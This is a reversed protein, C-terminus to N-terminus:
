GKTLKQILDSIATRTEDDRGTPITTINPTKNSTGTIAFQTQPHQQAIQKIADTQTTGAALILNCQRQILTTLYPLTNGVTNPGAVALYSVKAHTQQSAEQLGAWIPQVLPDTPGQEGTLLCAQFNTYERARTPPLQRDPKDSHVAITIVTIAAGVLILIATILRWHRRATSGLASRPATPTATKTM